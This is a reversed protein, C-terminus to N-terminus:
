FRKVDLNFVIDLIFNEVEEETILITKQKKVREKITTDKENFKINSANQKKIFQNFPPFDKEINKLVDVPKSYSITNSLFNNKFVGLHKQFVKKQLEFYSKIDSDLDIINIIINKDMWDSILVYFNIQEIYKELLYNFQYPKLHEKEDLLLFINEDLLTPKELLQLLKINSKLELINGKKDIVVIRNFISDFKSSGYLEKKNDPIISRPVYFILPKYLNNKLNNFTNDITM